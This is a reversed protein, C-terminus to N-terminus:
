TVTEGPEARYCADPAMIAIDKAVVGVGGPPRTGGDGPGSGCAATALVGSLAGALRRAHSM